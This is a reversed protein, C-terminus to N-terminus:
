QDDISSLALEVTCQLDKFLEADGRDTLYGVLRKSAERLQCCFSKNDDEAKELRDLAEPLATRLPNFVDAQCTWCLDGRDWERDGTDPIDGCAACAEDPQDEDHPPTAKACIARAEAIFEATTKPTM